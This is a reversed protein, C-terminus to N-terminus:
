EVTGDAVGVVRYVLRFTPIGELRCKTQRTTERWDSEDPWDAPNLLELAPVAGAAALVQDYSMGADTKVILLGGEVLLESVVQFFDPATLRRRQHRAKWWPDPYLLYVREISRSAALIPLAMRADCRLAHLNQVGREEIDARLLRAWKERYELALVNARPNSEALWLAFRGRNSGIEVITCPGPLTKQFARYDALYSQKADLARRDNLRHLRDAVENLAAAL